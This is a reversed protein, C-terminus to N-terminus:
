DVGSSEKSHGEHKRGTVVMVSRDVGAWEKSHGNHKMGPVVLCKLTSRCVTDEPLKTVEWASGYCKLRMRSSHVTAFTNGGLCQGLV